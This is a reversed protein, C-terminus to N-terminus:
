RLGEPTIIAIDKRQLWGVPQRDFRVQVWDKYFDRVSIAAGEPISGLEAAEPVPGSRIIAAGPSIVTAQTDLSRAVKLGLVVSFLCWMAGLAWARPGLSGIVEGSKRAMRRQRFLVTGYILVGLSFIWHLTLIEPLMFTHGFSDHFSNLLSDEQLSGQPKYNTSIFAFAQPLGSQRPAMLETQRLYALAKGWKKQQSFVLAQNFHAEAGLPDQTLYSGFSKEAGSYDNSQYESVGRSFVFAPGLTKAWLTLPGFWLCLLYLIAKKM